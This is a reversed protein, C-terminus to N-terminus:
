LHAVLFNIFRNTMHSSGDVLLQNLLRSDGPPVTPDGFETQHEPVLKLLAFAAAFTLVKQELVATVAPPNTLSHGSVVGGFSEVFTKFRQNHAQGQDSRSVRYYQLLAESLPGQLKVQSMALASPSTGPSFGARMAYADIDGLLDSDGAFGKFYDDPTGVPKGKVKPVTRGWSMDVAWEAAASGVDGSWSAVEENNLSTAIGHFSIPQPNMMADLGTFVHGLDTGEVTQSNRLAQMLPPTLQPTPDDGPSWPRNTIIRDWLGTRGSVLTWSASGYYIQRIVSLAKATDAPATLGLKQEMSRVLFLYEDLTKAGGALRDFPGESAPPLSSFKVRVARNSAREAATSNGALFSTTGAPGTAIVRSQVLAPMRAKVAEARQQQVNFNEVDNGACDTFGTITVKTNPDGAMFSIAEQWGPTDPADMLNKSGVALSQILLEQSSKSFATTPSAFFSKTKEGPDRAPCVPGPPVPTPPTKGLLANATPLDVKGSGKGPGGIAPSGILINGAAGDSKKGTVIDDMSAQFEVLKAETQDDFSCNQALNAGPLKQNLLEQLRHVRPRQVLEEPTVDGKGVVGDGEELGLITSPDAPFNETSEPCAAVPNPPPPIPGSGGLLRDLAGLTKHGAEWGGVPRVDHEQQFRRVTATTENGWVGDMTGEPSTSLPMPYGQQVLAQQLKAVAADKEGQELPPKDRYAAQLRNDGAWFPSQLQDPAGGSEPAPAQTAPGTMLRQMAARSGAGKLQASKLFSSVARNGITRQLYLIRAHIDPPHTSVLSPPNVEAKKVKVEPKVAVPAAKEPM